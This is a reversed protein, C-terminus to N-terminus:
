TKQRFEAYGDQDVTIRYGQYDFMIRMNAESSPPNSYLNKLVGDTCGWIDNFDTTDKGEIDALAEVIQISPTEVDTNLERRIVEKDSQDAM